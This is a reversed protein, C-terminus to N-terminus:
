AAPLRKGTAHLRLVDKDEIIPETVERLQRALSDRYEGICRFARNCRAEMSSLMRDLLELDSRVARLAEAEIASEDLDFAALVQSVKQKAEKENFWNLALEDADYENPDALEGALLRRLLTELATHLGMNVIQVKCRKLRIMEWVIAAMDIVYMRELMGRPKIDRELAECLADFHEASETSLVPPKLLSALKDDTIRRAAKAM